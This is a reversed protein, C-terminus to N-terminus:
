QDTRQWCAYMYLHAPIKVSVRLRGVTWLRHWGLSCAFRGFLGALRLLVDGLAVLLLFALPLLAVGHVNVLHQLLDVGIGAYRGLRHADHVAEDVVDEFPDGGLSGPQCVVVLPRGDGAPLDLGGHPQQKGALQGFVSYTFTGFGDGLVGARLSRHRGYDAPSENFRGKEPGGVRFQQKRARTDTQVKERLSLATLQEPHSTQLFFFVKQLIENTARFLAM